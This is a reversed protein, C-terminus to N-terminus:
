DRVYLFFFLTKVVHVGFFIRERERLNNSAYLKRYM